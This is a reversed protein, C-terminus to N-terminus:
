ALLDALKSSIRIARAAEADQVYAASRNAKALAEAKEAAFTLKEAKAKHAAQAKEFTQMAKTLGRSASEVSPTFLNTIFKM